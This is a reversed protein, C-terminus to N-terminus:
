VGAIQRQSEIIELSVLPGQGSGPCVACTEQWAQEDKLNMDWFPWTRCQVPRVPYIRCRRTFGDFFTCDGNPFETLSIKGRAPRTHFLRIEGIPKDLYAAINQLDSETVWVAGPQGSCCNGCGTCAFPLGQHYWPPGAQENAAAPVTEVIADKRKSRHENRLRASLCGRSEAAMIRCCDSKMWGRRGM